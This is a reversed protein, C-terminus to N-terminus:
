FANGVFALMRGWVLVMFWSVLSVGGILKLRFPTGTGVPLAEANERMSLEFVLVNLGAIVLFLVKLWWSLNTIYQDPTSVFFLIGTLLNIVFGTVAWPVLARFASVSLHSMFGLLRFDLPGIAGFLLALGLFHLTEALPWIWATNVVFQAFATTKLYAVMAEDVSTAAFVATMMQDLVDM